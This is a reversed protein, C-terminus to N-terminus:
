NVVLVGGRQSLSRRKERGPQYNAHDASLPGSHNCDAIFPLVCLVHPSLNVDCAHRVPSRDTSLRRRSWGPRGRRRKGPRAQQAVHHDGDRQEKHRLLLAPLLGPSVRRCELHRSNVGLGPRNGAVGGDICGLVGRQIM